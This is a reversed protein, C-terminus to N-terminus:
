RRGGKPSGYLDPRIVKAHRRLSRTAPSTLGELGADAHGTIVGGLSTILKPREVFVWGNGAILNAISRAAQLGMLLLFALATFLFLPIEWTFPYPNTRRSRQM